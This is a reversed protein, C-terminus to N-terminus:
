NRASRRPRLRNAMPVRSCRNPLMANRSIREANGLTKEKLFYEIAKVDHNTTSEIEKVRRADSQSFNTAIGDLLTNAAATLAPVEKIQGHGALAQLWRVEVLVRRRILGFESFYPRLVATKGEYRGDLPSLATLADLQLPTPTTPKNM